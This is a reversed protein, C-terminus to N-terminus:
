DCHSPQTALARDLAPNITRSWVEYGRANPHFRDSDFLTRDRNFAETTDRAIPALTYESEIWPYLKANVRAVHHGAIDRLPRAFRPVTGVNASGTFVLKAKCNAAILQSAIDEHRKVITHAPTLGVVDNAGVSVLVLDFKQKRAIPVQEDLVDKTTAGSVSLNLMTVRHTAALHRAASIAIGQEYPAGQGAATSDGLILLRLEPGTSGFSRETRPQHTYPAPRDRFALLVEAILVGAPIIVILALILSIKM